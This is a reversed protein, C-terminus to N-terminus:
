AAESGQVSTDKTEGTGLEIVVGPLMGRVELARYIAADLDPRPPGDAVSLEVETIASVGARSLIDAAARARVAPPVEVATGTDPHKAKGQALDALVELAEPVLGELRKRAAERVQPAKGGHYVCVRGGTIAYARCPEGDSRHATCRQAAPWRTAQVPHPETYVVPAEPDDLVNTSRADPEGTDLDSVSMTPYEHDSRHSALALATVNSQGSVPRARVRAVGVSAPM